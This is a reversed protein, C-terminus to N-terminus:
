SDWFVTAMLKKASREAKFKKPGDSGKPLWQKSQIKNEPDFLYIWTEDGTVIKSHFEDENTEILNLLSVGLDARQDLQEQRLAEPM